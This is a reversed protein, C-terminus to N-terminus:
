HDLNAKIEITTYLLIKIELGKNISIENSFDLRNFRRKLTLNIFLYKKKNNNNKCTLIYM